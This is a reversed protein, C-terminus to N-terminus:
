EPSDFTRSVVFSDSERFGETKLPLELYSNTERNWYVGCVKGDVVTLDELLLNEIKNEGDAGAFEPSDVRAIQFGYVSNWENYAELRVAVYDSAADKTLNEVLAFVHQGDSILKVANGLKRNDRFKAHGNYYENSWNGDKSFSGVGGESIFRRMEESSGKQVISYQSFTYQDHGGTFIGAFVTEGESPAPVAAAKEAATRIQNQLNKLYDAAARFENETDLDPGEERQAIAGIQATAEPPLGLSRAAVPQLKIKNEM